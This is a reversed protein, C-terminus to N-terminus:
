CSSICLDKMGFYKKGQARKSQMLELGRCKRWSWSHLMVWVIDCEKKRKKKKINWDTQYQRKTKMRNQTQNKSYNKLFNVCM